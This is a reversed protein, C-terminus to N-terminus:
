EEKPYVPNDLRVEGTIADVYVQFESNGFIYQPNAEKPGIEKRLTCKKSHPKPCNAMILKDYATQFSLFLAVLEFDEIWFSHNVVRDVNGEPTHTTRIVYTDYNVSDKQEIAQFVTEVYDIEMKEDGDLFNKLTVQVEYWKCNKEGYEEYVYKADEKVVNEVSFPVKKEHHCSTIAFAAVLVVVIFILIEKM